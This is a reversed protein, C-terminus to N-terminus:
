REPALRSSDTPGGQVQGLSEALGKLGRRLVGPNDIGRVGSVVQPQPMHAGSTGPGLNIEEDRGSFVLGCQLLWRTAPRPGSIDLSGCVRLFPLPCPCTELM